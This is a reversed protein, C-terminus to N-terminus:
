KLEEHKMFVEFDKRCKGCLHIIKEKKHYGRVISISEIDPLEHTQNCVYGYPENFIVAIEESAKIRKVFSMPPMKWAYINENIEEGCRDCTYWEREHKM